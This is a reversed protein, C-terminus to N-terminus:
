QAARLYALLDAMAPVDIQKELGEPMFSLGTSRLEDIHVRLVTEETGDARRITISNATEAAIMGTVTRGANTALVYSHFPPKVERNPDLINLLITDTSQDRLANLDAGIQTGVGELQHCASCEKKFVEKGRLNDGKLQLAKQYAAVVDRRRAPKTVSFLQTARDRLRADPHTQLIQIRASDVEYRNIKGQEVAGLFDAIWSARSFMVEVASLRLQPSFGPWAELLMGPVSPSDCRGLTEVAAAQVPQPQRLKLLERFLEQNGDLPALGLMRVAAAREAPPRQDDVATKLADQLLDAFLASAKGNSLQAFQRRGGPPLNAVVSRALDRSLERDDEPLADIGQALAAIEDARNASGILRALAMLFDRGPRTARYQQERLLLRCLQGARGNVSSLIALRFWSDAGDRQALKALARNPMEGHVAGLSFALQYRVHLDPDDTMQEFRARIDPSSEFQEALRLAHQSVRSDADCLAHMVTAADLAMMGELAYLAHMRGVPTKAEAALTKLLALATRDQRQYLLRSATDRHWGNSHQLLAVLEATSAKGLRPPQPRQFNQPVIRYLRGKDFGAGVDLHKVIAPTLFAAGQILHRYMDIVYLAGDPGNAMQVPRFWTDTSALFEAKADARVATLGLGSPELRARFVLNNAVEGVFVNGRYEAPWADGRYVTVGSCATYFGSPQDRETPHQSEGELGLTRLRTRVVRWPENPSIRVVKANYGGPAIRVAPSPAELYPNRAVYRRDYMLLHIPEHNTNVFTRGWDDISLGHQGGGSTLEFVGKGQAEGATPTALARRPDFLFGQGRVSVPNANKQGALRVQGGSLSPQLHIRNDFHWHFSNLMGEGLPDRGFGTYVVRRIDAKGDGDKAYLIDPAAGIFVGGDYCCVATALDVNELFITSKDFVGDGDRDELLRIRGKGQPTKSSSQNFEPFEAVYARGDEDFDVAVPSALLPEAAALEIRFSPHLRFTKLAEAATKPPIFPLESAYDKQASDQVAKAFPWAFIM